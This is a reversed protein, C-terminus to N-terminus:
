VRLDRKMYVPNKELDNEQICVYRMAVCQLVSCCVAVCQLVSCCVAGCQLVSCCMNEYAVCRM